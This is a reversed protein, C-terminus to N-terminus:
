IVFQRLAWGFVMDLLGLFAATLISIAIVLLTLRKVTERTPWTVKKIEAKSEKLYQLVQSFM